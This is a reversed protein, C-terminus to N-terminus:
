KNSEKVVNEVREVQDLKSLSLRVVSDKIATLDHPINGELAVISGSKFNHVEGQAGFDIEGELVQVVIPFKTQHEKMVQGENLLIRIEKSFPSELIVKTSIKDGFHLAESFSAIEM